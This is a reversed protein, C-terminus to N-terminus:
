NYIVRNNIKKQMIPLETVCKNAHTQLEKLVNTCIKINKEFQIKEHNLKCRSNMSKNLITNKMTSKNSRFNSDDYTYDRMKKQNFDLEEDITKDNMKIGNNLLNLPRLRTRKFPLKSRNSSCEFSNILKKSKNTIDKLTYLKYANISSGNPDIIAPFVRNNKGLHLRKLHMKIITNINYIEAKYVDNKNEPKIMAQAIAVSNISTSNRDYSDNLSIKITSNKSIMKELSTGSYTARRVFKQKQSNM